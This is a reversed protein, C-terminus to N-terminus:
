EWLIDGYLQWRRLRDTCLEYEREYLRKVGQYNYINGGANSSGDIDAFIKGDDTGVSVKPTNGTGVVKEEYEKILAASISDADDGVSIAYLRVYAEGQVIGDNIIDLFLFLIACIIFILIPMIFTVEITAMGKNNDLKRMKPM